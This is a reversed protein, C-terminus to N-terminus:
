WFVMMEYVLQCKIICRAKIETSVLVLPVRIPRNAPTHLRRAFRHRKSLRLYYMQMVPTSIFFLVVSDIKSYM